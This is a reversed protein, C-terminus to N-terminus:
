VLNEFKLWIPRKKKEKSFDNNLSEQVKEKLNIFLILLIGHNHIYIKLWYRISFTDYKKQRLAKNQRFSQWHSLGDQVGALKYVQM